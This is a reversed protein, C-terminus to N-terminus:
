IERTGSYTASTLAERFATEGSTVLAELPARAAALWSEPGPAYPPTLVPEIRALADRAWAGFLAQLDPLPAELAAERVSLPAAARALSELEGLGLRELVREFRERQAGDVGDPGALFREWLEDVLEDVRDGTDVQFDPGVGSEIPYRRLLRACFGHITTVEMEALAHVARRGREAI